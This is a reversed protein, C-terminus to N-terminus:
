RKAAPPPPPQPRSRPASTALPSEASALLARLEADGDGRYQERLLLRLDDRLAAASDYRREPEPAMARALVPALDEPIPAERLARAVRADDRFRSWDSDPAGDFAEPGMLAEFLVCGLGYVDTRADAPRGAMLEPARFAPVRGDRGPPLPPATALEKAIGAAM